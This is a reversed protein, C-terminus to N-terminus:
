VAENIVTFHVIRWDAKNLSDVIESGLAVDIPLM